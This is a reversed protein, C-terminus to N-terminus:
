VEPYPTIILFLRMDEGGMSQVLYPQPLCTRKRQNDAGTNAIKRSGSMCSALVPEPCRPVNKNTNLPLRRSPSFSHTSKKDGGRDLRPIPPSLSFFVCIRELRFTTGLCFCMGPQGSVTHYRADYALPSYYSILTITLFPHPHTNYM